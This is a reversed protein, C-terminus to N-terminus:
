GRALALPRVATSGLYNLLGPNLMPDCVHDQIQSMADCESAFM